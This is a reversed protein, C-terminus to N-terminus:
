QHANEKPWLGPVLNKLRLSPILRSSSAKVKLEGAGYVSGYRRSNAIRCSKREHGATTASNQKASKRKRQYIAYTAVLEEDDSYKMVM